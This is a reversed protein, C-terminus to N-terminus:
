KGKGMALVVLTYFLIKIDLALSMNEIYLIDFKLRQLMEKINGAYGYKVQGWSTIGPRVKLLHKYHPAKEMLQEIYFMREPRPGVLSMDGKLVNWFQPFEDLRYKRMIKGVPTCRNDNDSSLQPGDKEADIYMSRFKYILFPKFDKGIREQSYIIPGRSTMKVRAALFLLLPSLVILAITSIVVDLMRKVARQWPPMLYAKVRFMVAGYIHDIRVHGLLIDYMDPISHIIVSDEYDSLINMVSELEHHDSKEFAIIVDEIQQSEIVHALDAVTGQNPIIGELLNKKIRSTTLYGKFFYGLKQNRSNVDNYLDLANKGTGIILTNFGALGKKLRRSSRTLWIMRVIGVILVFLLYFTLIHKFYVELPSVFHELIGTFYLLSIGIFGSIFLSAIAKLRSYRYVDMYPSVLNLLLLWGISVLLGNALFSSNFSLETGAFFYGWIIWTLFSGVFDLLVYIITDIRHKIKM